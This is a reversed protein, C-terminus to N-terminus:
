GESTIQRRDATVTPEGTNARRGDSRGANAASQRGPKLNSSRSSLRYNVQVFTDIPEQRTRLVLETGPVSDGMSVQRAEEIRDTAGRIFSAVYQRREKYGIMGKLYPREPHAQWWKNLSSIAQLQISTALTLLHRVDSEFGVLNLLEANHAPSTFSRVPVGTARLLAHMNLVIATRYIGTVRMVKVVVEETPRDGAAQRAAVVAADISYKMMIAQAKHLAADAQGDEGHRRCHEAQKLLDDIRKQKREIDVDDEVNTQDSTTM